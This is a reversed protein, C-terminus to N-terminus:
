EEEVTVEKALPFITSVKFLDGDLYIEFKGGQLETLSRSISLGLGTGETTRSIDGRVFRETLQDASINLQYASINKIVVHVENDKVKVDLYVRTGKLSYKVANNLTNEFIRWMRRGDAYIIGKEESFNCILSLGAAEMKEEFEGATQRLLEIVDLNQMELKINGSSAKSAELVDETLTKLRKSKQDLIDIYGKIKEDEIDERKLIDVYNIISTLPTKIDHSVNTILDTKLRESSIKEDVANKMGVGINNITEATKKLPGNISSEDIKYELNGNSIENLGKRVKAVDITYIVSCVIFAINAVMALIITEAHPSVYALTNVAVFVMSLILSKVIVTRNNWAEGIFKCIVKLISNTWMTGAKLRRVLSLYGSLMIIVFIILMIFAFIDGPLNYPDAIFWLNLYACILSPVIIISAAIETKISDFSAIHLEDDEYKRGAGLTVIVTMIILLITALAVFLVSTLVYFRIKAYDKAANYFSDQLKFDTDVYAYFRCAEDKTNSTLMDKWESAKIDLNSEFDSLYPTINIYKYHNVDEKINELSKIKTDNTKIKGDAGIFAYRYNINNGSYKKRFAKYEEYDEKVTSMVFDYANYIEVLRGNYEPYNNVIDLISEGYVTKVDDNIPDPYNWCDIFLIEGSKNKIKITFNVDPFRKFDELYKLIFNEDHNDAYESDTEIIYEDNNSYIEIFEDPTYYSFTRDPKQCVIVSRTKAFENHEVVDGVRYEIPQPKADNYAAAISNEESEIKEERLSPKLDVNNYDVPYYEDVFSLLDINKDFDFEGNKEYTEERRIQNLVSETYEYFDNIFVVSETYDRNIMRVYDMDSYKGTFMSLVILAGILLVSLAAETVVLIRKILPKTYWKGM